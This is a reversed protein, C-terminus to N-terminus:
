IIKTFLIKKWNQPFLFVTIALVIMLIGGITLSSIEVSDSFFNKDNLISIVNIKKILENRIQEETAEPVIVQSELNSINFNEGRSYNIEVAKSEIDNGSNSSQHSKSRILNEEQKVFSQKEKIKEIFNYNQTIIQGSIKSGKKAEKNNIIVTNHVNINELSHGALSKSNKNNSDSLSTLSTFDNNDNKSKTELNPIFNFDSNQFTTLNALFINNILFM